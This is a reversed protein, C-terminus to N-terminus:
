DVGSKTGMVRKTYSVGKRIWGNDRPDDGYPWQPPISLANGEGYRSSPKGMQNLGAAWELLPSDLGAVTGVLGYHWNGFDQNEPGTKYDWPGGDTVM